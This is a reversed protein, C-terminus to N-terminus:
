ITEYKRPGRAEEAGAALVGDDRLLDRQHEEGQDQFASAAPRWVTNIFQPINKKFLKLVFSCIWGM